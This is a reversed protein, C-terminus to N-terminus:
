ADVTYSFPLNNVEMSGDKKGTIFDESILSEFFLDDEFAVLHNGQEFIMDFEVVDMNGDVSKFLLQDLKELAHGNEKRYEKIFSDLIMDNKFKFLFVLATVVLAFAAVGLLIM